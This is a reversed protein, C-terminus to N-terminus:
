NKNFDSSFQRLHTIEGYPAPIRRFHIKEGQPWFGTLLTGNSAFDCPPELWGSKTSIRTTGCSNHTNGSNTTSPYFTLLTIGRDSDPPFPVMLRSIEGRNWGVVKRQFGLQDSLTTRIGLIRAWSGSTALLVNSRDFGSIFPARLHWIEILNRGAM